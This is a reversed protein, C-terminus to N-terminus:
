ILYRWTLYQLTLIEKGKIIRSLLNKYKIINRKKQDIPM